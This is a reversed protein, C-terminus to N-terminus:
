AVMGLVKILDKVGEDNLQVWVKTERTEVKVSSCRRFDM